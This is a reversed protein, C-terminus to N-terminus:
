DDKLLERIRDFFVRSSPSAIQMKDMLKRAEERRVAHKWIHDLMEDTVKGPKGGYIAKTPAPMM